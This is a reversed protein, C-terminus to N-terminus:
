TATPNSRIAHLAPATCVDGRAANGPEAAVRYTLTTLLTIAIAFPQIRNMM